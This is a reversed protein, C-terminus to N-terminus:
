VHVNIHLPARLSHVVKLQPVVISIKGDCMADRYSFQETLEILFFKREDCRGPAKDTDVNMATVAVRPTGRM